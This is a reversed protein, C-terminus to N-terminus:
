AQHTELLGLYIQELRSVGYQVQAVTLSLQRLLGLITEVDESRSTAFTWTNPGSLTPRWEALTDLAAQSLPTSLQVHLQPNSARALFAHMSDCALVRGHDIISLYDCIAQVEEMYHSTYVITIGSEKLRKLTELITQRSRADVGVTPEDLYLIQPANLLGIALNLRRKLGGSYEAALQDIVEELGCSEVARSIRERRQSAPVCYVDAFFEL